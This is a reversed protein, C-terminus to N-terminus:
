PGKPRVKSDALVVQVVGSAGGEAIDRALTGWPQALRGHPVGGSQGINGLEEGSKARKVIWAVTVTDEGPLGPAVTVKGEIVYDADDKVMLGGRQLARRLAEVLTKDGDGPLGKLPVLSVATRLDRAPAQSPRADPDALPNAFAVAPGVAMRQMQKPEAKALVLKPVSQVQTALERGDPTKLHWRVLVDGGREALEGDIVHGFAPGEQLTAPIEQEELAQVMALALTRGSEDDAPPRVTVGRTMKPRALAPVNDEHRFPQPIDGCAGLSGAVLLLGFARRM